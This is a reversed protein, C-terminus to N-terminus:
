LNKEPYLADWWGSDDKLWKDFWAFITKQWKLRKKYDTIHHNQDKVEVLAVEKGLLKLATFMQISEGHPVNTDADGHLLLLPTTVKDANFLPSQEIYIEHNNWPFSNASAVASYSYGWFGEGWYSSISSIGAHSIAAAFIDTRTTLLMTMFGGYSAGLCGVKESDIFTHDSLFLETGSIIEDAVTIGWNNVHMASFEQGYGTAGSPQLVYVVYGMAAFLNKPYRGRFSRDTPSTGGYYYVILPYKKEPDFEPPYYVRGEITIGGKNEFNWDDTKGFRVNNFAANEPNAIQSQQKTKLDYDFCVTPYSISSGTYVMKHNNSAFDISKIVDVQANLDEIANTEPNFVYAKRYTRDQGIFYIHNDNPNWEASLISPNFDKSIANVDGSALDYIYAQTDYDNPISNESVNKGIEGFLVPSGTVLLKKGNPSYSASGSYNTEWITDISLDALNLEMMIQKSYPRVSFDALEHSIILKRGDPSIDHLNNSVHGYTLLQTSLDKINLKTLQTRNRWWPWRDPMGEVKYVDGDNEKPKESISYIIFTGDKAWSHNSFDDKSRLLISNTFSDLDLLELTNKEAQKSTFSIQHGNPAWKAQHMERGRSSFIVKKNEIEQVDFWNESKGNPSFVESYRIMVYKGDSSLSAGKVRQGELLLKMNMIQEPNISLQIDTTPKDIIRTRVKWKVEKNKSYLSAIVILHKGPELNLTKKKKEVKTEKDTFSLKSLKKIGDVYLIFCQKTEIELTLKTYNSNKLYSTQWNLAYDSNPTNRIAFNGNKGSKQKKWIVLKDEQVLFVDGSVPRKVEKLGNTLLSPANFKKGDLNNESHFTPLSVLVPGATLWQEFLVEKNLSDSTSAHLLSLPLFWIIFFISVSKSSVTQHLKKISIQIDKM